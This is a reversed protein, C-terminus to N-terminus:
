LRSKKLKKERDFAFFRDAHAYPIGLEAGFQELISVTGTVTANNELSLPLLLFESKGQFPFERELDPTDLKDEKVTQAVKFNCGKM